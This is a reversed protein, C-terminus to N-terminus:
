SRGTPAQKLIGRALERGAYTTGAVFRMLPGYSWAAPAGLFHLGPVSSEFGRRLVPYGDAVELEEILEPALFGYQGVDVRYGTGLLVHDVERTSGNDFTVAIRGGREEAEVAELSPTITVTGLRPPLWGAGAPRLAKGTMWTQLRRPMNRFAGPMAVMRSIGAPGVDPWAYMLSSVPGLKHHWRRTLWSVEPARAAVEVGAGGEALLAASELASQGGGVVLVHRDAFASLDDHECCHSVLERPLDRFIEPFWKFDSIGAAVVVRAAHLREGSAATLHFGDGNRAVESVHESRLEPLARQQFWRGYDVFRELPV